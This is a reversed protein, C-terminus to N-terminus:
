QPPPLASEQGAWPVTQEEYWQLPKRLVFDNKEGRLDLALPIGHFKTYLIGSSQKDRIQLNAKLKLGESDIDFNEIEMSNAAIEIDAEGELDKFNLIGKLKNFIKKEQGLLAILPRTDKMKIEASCVIEGPDKLQLWGKTMDLHFYWNEDTKKGDEITVMDIKLGSDTFDFWRDRVDDTTVNLDLSLDGKIAVEGYSADIGQGRVDISAQGGNDRTLVAHTEVLVEGSDLTFNEVAPIPFRTIDTVHANALDLSIAELAPALGQVGGSLDLMGADANLELDAGALLPETSERDTLAVDTLTLVVKTSSRDEAREVKSRLTLLGTARWDVIDIWGGESDFSIETGPALVGQEIQIVGAVQGGPSGVEVTEINALLSNILDGGKSRGSLSVSGSLSKLVDFGKTETPQFPDM